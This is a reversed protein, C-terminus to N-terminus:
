EGRLCRLKEGILEVEALDAETESDFHNKIEQFEIDEYMADIEETEEMGFFPENDPPPNGEEMSQQTNELEEIAEEAPMEPDPHNTSEYMALALAEADEADYGQEMFEKKAQLFDKRSMKPVEPKAEPEPEKSKKAQGEFM